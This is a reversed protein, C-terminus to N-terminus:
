LDSGLEPDGPLPPIPSQEQLDGTRAGSGTGGAPGTSESEAGREPAEPLMESDDDADAATEPLPAEPGADGSIDPEASTSLIEPEPLGPADGREGRPGGIEPIGGSPTEGTEPPSGDTRTRGPGSGPIMTPRGLPSGGAPASLGDHGNGGPRFSQLLALLEAASATVGPAPTAEGSTELAGDAGALREIPELSEAAISATLAQVLPNEHLDGAQHLIQYLRDVAVISDPFGELGLARLADERIIMARAWMQYGSLSVERGTFDWHITGDLDRLGNTHLVVGPLRLRAHFLMRPNFPSLGIEGPLYAGLAAPLRHELKTLFAPLSGHLSEITLNYSSKAEDSAIREWTLPPAGTHRPRVLENFKGELFRVMAAKRIHLGGPLDDSRLPLGLRAAEMRLRGRWEEDESPRSLGSRSARRIEWAISYLRQAIEPVRSRLYRDLETIDYDTDLHGHLCQLVTDLVFRVLDRLAEEGESRRVIDPIVEEYDIVEVLVLDLSRFLVRNAAIKDSAPTIKMFDPPIAEVTDFTGQYAAKTEYVEQRAYPAPDPLRLYQDLHIRHGALKEHPRASFLVARTASGDRHVETVSQMTLTPACGSLVYLLGVCVATRIADRM